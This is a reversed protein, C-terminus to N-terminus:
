IYRMKILTILPNLIRRTYKKRKDTKSIYDAIPPSIKYYIQVGKKGITSQNLIEDRWQRFINIEQEYSTGYAATAIFCKSQQKMNYLERNFEKTENKIKTGVSMKKELENIQDLDDKYLDSRPKIFNNIVYKSNSEDGVLYYSSALAFLISKLYSQIRWDNRWEEKNADILDYLDKMFTFVDNLRNKDDNNWKGNSIEDNWTNIAIKFIYIYDDMKEMYEYKEELTWNRYGFPIRETDNM